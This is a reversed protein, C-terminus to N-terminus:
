NPIGLVSINYRKNNDWLGQTNQEKKNRKERQIKTKSTEISVKPSMLEKRLQTWNISSETLPM